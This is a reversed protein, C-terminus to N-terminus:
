DHFDKSIGCLCSFFAAAHSWKLYSTTRKEKIFFLIFVCVCVCVCVCHKYHKNRKNSREKDRRKRGGKRVV